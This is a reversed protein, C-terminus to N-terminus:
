HLPLAIFGLRHQLEEKCPQAIGVQRPQLGTHPLPPPGRPQLQAAHAPTLLARGPALLPAYCCDHATPQMNSLDSFTIILSSFCGKSTTECELLASCAHLLGRTGFTSQLLQDTENSDICRPVLVVEAVGGVETLCSRPHPQRQPDAASAAGQRQRSDPQPLCTSRPNTLIMMHSQRNSQCADAASLPARCCPLMPHQCPTSTHKMTIAPSTLQRWPHSNDVSTRASKFLRRRHKEGRAQQQQLGLRQVCGGDSAAFASCAALRRM